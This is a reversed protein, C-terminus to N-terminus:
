CGQSCDQGWAPPAALMLGMAVLPLLSGLKRLETSHKAAKM